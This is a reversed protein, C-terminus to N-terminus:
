VGRPYNSLIILASIGLSLLLVLAYEVPSPNPQSIFQQENVLWQDIAAEGAPTTCYLGTENRVILGKDELTQYGPLVDQCQTAALPELTLHTLFLAELNSLFLDDLDM